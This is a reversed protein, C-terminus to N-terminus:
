RVGVPQPAQELEAIKKAAAPMYYGYKALFAAQAPNEFLYFIADIKADVLTADVVTQAIGEAQERTMGQAVWNKMEADRFQDLSEYQGYLEPQEQQAKAFAKDQLEFYPRAEVRGALLEAHGPSLPKAPSVDSKSYQPYKAQWSALEKDYVSYNLTGDELELGPKDFIAYYDSEAREAETMAKREKREPLLKERAQRAIALEQVYADYQKRAEFGSLEDAELATDVSAAAQSKAARETDNIQRSLAYIDGTAALEEGRKKLEGAIGQNEPRQMVEQQQLATMENWKTIPQGSKDTLGANKALNDYVMQNTDARLNIGSIQSTQGASGLRAEQEAIWNELAPFRKGALSTLQQAPIPLGIDSVAQGIRSQPTDLPRGFFDKGTAQNSIGRILVNERAQIFSKPDLLRLATDMQMLLDLQLNTGGRGKIPVDPSLFRPNYTAGLPGGETVPSLREKPLPEGTTALHITEALAGLFVLGGAWYEGWIQKNPGHFTSGTAKLFSETENPSFILMRTAETINRNLHRLASQSKPLTSFMKNAEVAISAALQADTWDPHLRSIAPALFNEITTKQAQPYVGEFLGREMAGNISNIVRKPLNKTNAENITTMLTDRMSKNFTSVDSSSLGQDSIMKWTLGPREKIVPKTSTFVKQLNRRMAPSFNAAVMEGISLPLRTVKSAASIPKGHMLDNIAGGMSGFGTRTAFDMQQFFSGLLKVRKLANTAGSVVGHVDAKGVTGWSLNRGFMQELVNAVGNPVMKPPTYRIEGAADVYPKPAFVAGGVDPIRWGDPMPGVVDNVLGQGKLKDLLKSQERYEAGAQRRLAVMEYPNWTRPEYGADLLEQFTADARPKTFGPKAGLTSPSPRTAKPQKWFRPFYDPHMQFKPDFGLTKAEEEALMRKADDYVARLKEPPADAGHLSNYLQRVEPTDKGPEIQFFKLRKTGADIDVRQQRASTGVAGEYQRFAADPVSEGPIMGDLADSPEVRPTRPPGGAPPAAGAPPVPPQGAGAPPLSSQAVPGAPPTAAAPAPVEDAAGSLRAGFPATEGVAQPTFTQGATSAVRAAEPAFEPVETVARRGATAPLAGLPTIGRTGGRLASIGGPVMGIGPVFELAIEAPSSPGVTEASQRGAEEVAGGLNSLGPVNIGALDAVNAAIGVPGGLVGLAGRAALGGVDGWLEKVPEMRTTAFQAADSIPDFVASSLPSPSVYAGTDIAQQRLTGPAQQDVDPTPVPPGYQPLAEAASTVGQAPMTPAPEPQAVPAPSGYVESQPQVAEPLLWWPEEPPEFLGAIGGFNREAQEAYSRLPNFFNM